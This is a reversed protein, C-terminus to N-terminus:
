RNHFQTRAVALPTPETSTVQWRYFEAGSTDIDYTYFTTADLFALNSGTYPGTTTARMTGTSGPTVSTVSPAPNTAPPPTTSGGGAAGCGSIVVALVVIVVTAAAIKLIGYVCSPVSSPLPQRM